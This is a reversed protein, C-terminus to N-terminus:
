RIGLIVEEGDGDNSAPLDCVNDLANASPRALNRHNRHNRSRCEPPLHCSGNNVCALQSRCLHTNASLQIYLTCMCLYSTMLFQRWFLMGRWADGPRDRQRNKNKSKSGSGNTAHMGGKLKTSEGKAM